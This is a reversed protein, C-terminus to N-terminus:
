FTAFDFGTLTSGLTGSSHDKMWASFAADTAATKSPQLGGATGNAPPPSGWYVYEFNKWTCNMGEPMNGIWLTNEGPGGIMNMSVLGSPVNHVNFYVHEDGDGMMNLSLNVKSTFTIPVFSSPLQSPGNPQILMTYLAKGGAGVLTAGDTIRLNDADDATNISFNLAAVGDTVGAVNSLYVSQSLNGAASTLVMGLSAPAVPPPPGPLPPKVGEAYTETLLQSPTGLIVFQNTGIGGDFTIPLGAAKALFHTGNDITLTDNGGLGQVSVSTVNALPVMKSIRGDSFAVLEQQPVISPAFRISLQDAFDSGIIQVAGSTGPPPILVSPVTRDELGELGPKGFLPATARRAARRRLSDVFYGM